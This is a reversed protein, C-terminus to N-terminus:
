WNFQLQDASVFRARRRRGKTSRRIALTRPQGPLILVRQDAYLEAISKRPFKEESEGRMGGVQPSDLWRLVTLVERVTPTLEGSVALRSVEARDFARVDLLDSSAELRGGIVDAAVYIVIRHEKLPVIIEAVHIIEAVRIELGTEERFERSATDAYHEYLEIGGGPIVWKGYFPEKGRRGLVIRGSEVAVVACGVRINLGAM